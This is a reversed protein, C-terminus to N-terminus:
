ARNLSCWNNMDIGACLLRAKAFAVSQNWNLQAAKSLIIASALENSVIVRWSGTDIKEPFDIMLPDEGHSLLGRADLQSSFPVGQARVTNCEKELLAAADVLSNFDDFYVVMKDPRLLGGLSSGIKFSIATSGTIIPLSKSFLLPLDEIVPSVYLKYTREYGNKSMSQTPRMWALWGKSESSRSYTWASELMNLDHPSTSGFLFQKVSQKSYFNTRDLYDWPTTNYKYLQTSLSTTDPQDLMWGFRIAQMSLMSLYNPVIDADFIDGGYLAPLAESGGVYRGNWKVQIIDDIVLRAILDNNSESAELYHPLGSCHELHFYLMAIKKYAVKSTLAQLNAVPLFLGYVETEEHLAALTEKEDQNLLKWETM